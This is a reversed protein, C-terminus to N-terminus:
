FLQDFKKRFNEAIIKPVEYKREDNLETNDMGRITAFYKGGVTESVRVSLVSGAIPKGIQKDWYVEQLQVTLSDHDFNNIKEGVEKFHKIISDKITPETTYIEKLQIPLDDSLYDRVKQFQRIVGGGKNEGFVTWQTVLFQDIADEPNDPLRDRKGNFQVYREQRAINYNLKGQHSSSGHLAETTSSPYVFCRHDKNSIIESLKGGGLRGVGVSIRDLHEFWWPKDPDDKIKDKLFVILDGTPKDQERQVLSNGANSSANEM